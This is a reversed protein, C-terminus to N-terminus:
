EYTVLVERPGSVRGIIIKKSEKNRVRISEGLGGNEFATGEATVEIGGFRAVLRVKDGRRVLREREIASSTLPKGELLLRRAIRGVVEASDHVADRPLSFGDRREVRVDAAEIRAGKAIPHVPVVVNVIRTAHVPVFFIKEEEAGEGGVKVTLRVSFNSTVRRPLTVRFSLPGEPLIPEEPLRTIQFHAGAGEPWSALERELVERMTERSLRVGRRIVTPERGEIRVERPTFGEQLVRMRITELPIIRQRGAPPAFGLVAKELNRSIVADAGTIEAVDGLRVYRGSVEADHPIITIATAPSAILLFLLLAQLLNRAAVISREMKM